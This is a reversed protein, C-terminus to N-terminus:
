KTKSMFEFVLDSKMPNGNRDLIGGPGGTLTVRYLMPSDNKAQLGDFIAVATTNGDCFFLDALYANKESEILVNDYLSFINLESTGDDDAFQFNFYYNKANSDILAAPDGMDVEIPWPLAAPYQYLVTYNGDIDSGQITSLRINKSGAASTRFAIDRPGRLRRGNLDQASASVRLTHVTDSSLDKEPRFVMTREGDRWSFTGSIGPSLSFAGETSIRDMPESFDVRLATGRRVDGNVIDPDWYPPPLSDDDCIGIIEPQIFDDGTVFIVLYERELTNGAPDAASASLTTTYRRGYELPATLVFELRTDDANWSFYGPADPSLSFASEAAMRDMPESFDLAIFPLDTSINMTGGETYPPSSSLVRPKEIDEGAYFDSLFSESMTNGKADRVSRPLEMVYRTGTEFGSFPTFTFARETTWAFTGETRGGSGTLTFNREVDSRNVPNNFEMTVVSGNEVGYQHNAPHHGVVELPEYDACSIMVALFAATFMCTRKM